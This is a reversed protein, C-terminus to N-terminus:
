VKPPMNKGTVLWQFLSWLLGVAKEADDLDDEKFRRQENGTNTGHAHVTIWQSHEDVAVHLHTQRRDHNTWDVKYQKASQTNKRNAELLKGTVLEQEMEQIEPFVVNEMFQRARLDWAAKQEKRQRAEQEAADITAAQEQIAKRAAERATEKNTTM